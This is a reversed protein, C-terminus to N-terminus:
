NLFIWLNDRLCPNQFLKARKWGKNEFITFNQRWNKRSGSKKAAGKPNQPWFKQGKAVSPLLLELPM